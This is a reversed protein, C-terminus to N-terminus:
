LFLNVLFNEGNEDDIRAESQNVPIVLLSLTFHFTGILKHVVMLRALWGPTM